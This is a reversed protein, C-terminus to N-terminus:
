ESMQLSLKLVRVSEAAALTSNHLDPLFYFRLQGDVVDVDMPNQAISNNLDSVLTWRFWPKYILSRLDVMM